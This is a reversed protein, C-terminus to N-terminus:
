FNFGLRVVFGFTDVDYRFRELNEGKDYDMSIYRYGITTQFLKSFRYGINAQVQWSLDSGVGFGGVDGRIQALWKGRIVNNSRLVIIPDFWTKSASGSQPENITELDLGTYLNVLRGGLGFDLWPTIRKLGAVEWGLQKMTMQGGTIVNSTTVDQGLKMYLLDTTIAWDDNTAEFYLMAGMKLHGLIAGEDADVEVTPIDAIGVEGSMSPFMMYVETLYHWKKAATSDQASVLTSSLTLLLVLTGILNRNVFQNKIKM